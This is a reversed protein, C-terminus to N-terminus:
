VHNAFVKKKRAKGTTERQKLCPRMYGLNADFENCIGLQGQVRLGGAEAELNRPSDAYVVM